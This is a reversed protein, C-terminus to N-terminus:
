ITIANLLFQHFFILDMSLLVYKGVSVDQAIM